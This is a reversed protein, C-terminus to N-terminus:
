KVGSPLDHNWESFDCIAGINIGVPNVFPEVEELEGTSLANSWRGSDAVWSCDKLMLLKNEYDVQILRGLYHHTVTRIFYKVGVTLMEGERPAVTLSESKPVWTEGNIEMEKM